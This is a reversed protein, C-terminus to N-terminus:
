RNIIMSVEQKVQLFLPSSLRMYNRHKRPNLQKLIEVARKKYEISSVNLHKQRYTDLLALIAEEPDYGVCSLLKIGFRDAELENALAYGSSSQSKTHGQLHHGLEHAIVYAIETESQVQALLGLSVYIRNPYLSFANSEPIKLIKIQLAPHATEIEKCSLLDATIADLFNQM